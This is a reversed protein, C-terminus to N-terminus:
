ISPKLFAEIIKLTDDKATESVTDTGICSPCGSECQCGTIMKKTEAFVKSM